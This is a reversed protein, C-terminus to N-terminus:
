KWVRMVKYVGAGTGTSIGEVKSLFDQMEKADSHADLFENLSAFSPASFIVLHSSESGARSALLRILGPAKKALATNMYENFAKAYAGGAGDKVDVGIAYIYDGEKWSKGNDAVHLNLAESSGTAVASSRRLFKAFDKSANAADMSTQWAAYDPYDLVLTHTSADSGNVVNSLLTAIRPNKAEPSSFWADVEDLFAAEDTVIDSYVQEVQATASICFLFFFLVLSIALAQKNM